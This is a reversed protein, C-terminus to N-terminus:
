CPPTTSSPKSPLISCSASTLSIDYYRESAWKGADEYKQSFATDWTAYWQRFATDARRLEEFDSDRVQGESPSLSNHLKERIAMLELTSVLRM